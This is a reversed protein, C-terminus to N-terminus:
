FEETTEKEYDCDLCYKVRKSDERVRKYWNKSNCKPCREDEQKLLEMRKDFFSKVM